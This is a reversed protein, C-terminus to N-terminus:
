TPRKLSALLTELESIMKEVVDTEMSFSQTSGDRNVVTLIIENKSTSTEVTRIPENQM